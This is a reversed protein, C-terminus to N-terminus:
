DNNPLSRQHQLPNDMYANGPGNMFPSRTNKGNAQTVNNSQFKTSLPKQTNPVVLYKFQGGTNFQKDGEKPTNLKINTVHTSKQPTQYNQQFMNKIDQLSESNKKDLNQFRQLGNIM